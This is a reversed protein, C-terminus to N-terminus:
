NNQKICVIRNEIVLKLCMVYGLLYSLGIQGMSRKEKEGGWYFINTFLVKRRYINLVQVVVILVVEENGGVMYLYQSEMEDKWRCCIYLIYGGGLALGEGM